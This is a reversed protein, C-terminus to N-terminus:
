ICGVLGLTRRDVELLVIRRDAVRLLPRLPVAEQVQSSAAELPESRRIEPEVIGIDDVVEPTDTEGPPTRRRSRDEFAELRRHLVPM